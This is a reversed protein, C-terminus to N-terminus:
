SFLVASLKRRGAATEPDGHGMADFFKLLQLRAKDEEWSRNCRIIEILADVAGEKQGASFLALALDFRAQHDAPNKEVAAALAAMDHGSPANEALEVAIRAAAFIAHGAIDPPASDVMGRAQDVNGAAILTRVFGTYAAANKGDQELVAAYMAQSTAIDGASLSQAAEALVAPIDLADPKSQQAMRALQEILSKIESAPRIGSFASVPRGQFFAYVTPVSQVRLAQALEPNEDINIKALRVKGGAERVAAELIPGLQKCPGCWPAWFDVLVPVGMSVNLVRAEFDATVADFIISDASDAKESQDLAPKRSM